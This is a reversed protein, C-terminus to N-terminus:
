KPRPCALGLAVGLVNISKIKTVCLSKCPPFVPWIRGLIAWFASSVGRGGWM